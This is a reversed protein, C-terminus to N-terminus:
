TDHLELIRSWDLLRAMQHALATAYDLYLQFSLFLCRAAVLIFRKLLM